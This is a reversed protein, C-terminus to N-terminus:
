QCSTSLAYGAQEAEEGTTFYIRNEQKITKGASCSTTYYKKGKKSAFFTKTSSNTSTPSSTDSVASIVNATQNTSTEADQGTYEGAVAPLIKVGGSTDEKSLRGLEFSGLGVLVVVIVTLIDKGKDSEIFLKVRYHIKAFGKYPASQANSFDVVPNIKESSDHISM